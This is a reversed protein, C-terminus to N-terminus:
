RLLAKLKRVEPTNKSRNLLARLWKKAGADKGTAIESLNNLTYRIFDQDSPGENMDALAEFESRSIEAKGLLGAYATYLSFPKTAGTRTYVASYRAMGLNYGGGSGEGTFHVELFVDLSDRQAAIITASFKRSIAFDFGQEYGDVTFSFVPDFGPQTLDYWDEIESDIGSGRAGQSHIRLFPTGTSREIEHWRPHNHILAEQVGSFRWSGDKEQLFRIYIDAPTADGQVLLIAQDPNLVIILETSCQRKGGSLKGCPQIFPGETGLAKWLVEWDFGFHSDIFRALDYPNKAARALDDSQSPPISQAVLTLVALALPLM